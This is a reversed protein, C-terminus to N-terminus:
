APEEPADSFGHLDHGRYAGKLFSEDLCHNVVGHQGSSKQLASM